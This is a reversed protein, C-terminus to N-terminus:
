LELYILVRIISVPIVLGQYNRRPDEVALEPGDQDPDLLVFQLTIAHLTWVVAHAIVLTLLGLAIVLFPLAVLAGLVGLVVELAILADAVGFVWVQVPVLAHCALQVLHELISLTHALLAELLHPGLAHIDASYVLVPNLALALALWAVESESIHAPLAGITSVFVPLALALLAVVPIIVGEVAM